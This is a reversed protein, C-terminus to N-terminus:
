KCGQAESLLLWGCSINAMPSGDHQNDTDILTTVAMRFMSNTVSGVLQQLRVYM